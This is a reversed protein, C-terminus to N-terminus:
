EWFSFPNGAEAQVPLSMEAPTSDISDVPVPLLSESIDPTKVEIAISGGAISHEAPVPNASSLAHSSPAVWFRISADFSGTVFHGSNPEYAMTSISGTHGTLIATQKGTATDWLRVMNDSEGSALTEKDCFALSFTKGPRESFARVLKGSQPNWLMVFPGEGGVAVLSDDPSFALAHVRRSDGEIDILHKLDSTRWIRVVGTRGGVALMSGDNSYALSENNTSHSQLTASLKYTSADYIRITQDFGCLAFQTGDPKFAIQRTGRVSENLTHVLKNKQTDWFLIQGDQGVSALRLSDPSFALSCVLEKHGLLEATFREASVNWLRVVHDDGGVAIWKGKKELGMSKVIPVSRYNDAEGQIEERLRVEKVAEMFTQAQVEVALMFLVVWITLFISKHM